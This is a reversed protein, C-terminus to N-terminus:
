KQKTAEAAVDVDSSSEFDPLEFRFCRVVAAVDKVRGPKM